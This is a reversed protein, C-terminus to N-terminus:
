IGPVVPNINVTHKLNSYKEIKDALYYKKQLVMKIHVTTNQHFWFSIGFHNLMLIYMHWIPNTNIYWKGVKWFWASLYEESGRQKVRYVHIYKVIIRAHKKHGQQMPLLCHGKNIVQGDKNYQGIYTISSIIKLYFEKQFIEPWM